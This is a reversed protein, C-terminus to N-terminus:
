FTLRENLWRIMDMERAIVRLRRDGHVREVEAQRLRSARVDSSGRGGVAVGLVGRAVTDAPGLARTRRRKATSGRSCHSRVSGRRTRSRGDDISAAYSPREGIVGRSDDRAPTRSGPASCTRLTRRAAHKQKPKTASTLAADPSAARANATGLTEILAAENTAMSASEPRITDGM